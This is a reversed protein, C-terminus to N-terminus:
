FFLYSEILVYVTYYLCAEHLGYKAELKVAIVFSDSCIGTHLHFIIHHYIM